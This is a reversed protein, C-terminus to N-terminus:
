QSLDVEDEDIVSEEEQPKEFSALLKNTYEGAEKLSNEKLLGVVEMSQVAKGLIGGDLSEDVVEVFGKIKDKIEAINSSSMQDITSEVESNSMSFIDDEDTKPKNTETMEPLEKEDVDYDDAGDYQDLYDNVVSEATEDGEIYKPDVDTENEKELEDRSGTWISILNEIGNQLDGNVTAGAIIAGAAPLGFNAILSKGIGGGAHLTNSVADKTFGWAAKGTVGIMKFNAKRIAAKSEREADVMDLADSISVYAGQAVAEAATDEANIDQDEFNALSSKATEYAAKLDERSNKYQEEANKLDSTDAKRKNQEAEQLLDEMEDNLPQAM